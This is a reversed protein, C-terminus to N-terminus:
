WTVGQGGFTVGEGGFTVNEGEGALEASKPGVEEIVMDGAGVSDFVLKKITGNPVLFYEKNALLRKAPVNSADNFLMDVAVSSSILITKILEPSAFVAEKQEAAAFSLDHRARLLNFLPLANTEIVGDLHDLVITSEFGSSGAKLLGQPTQYDSTGINNYTPM